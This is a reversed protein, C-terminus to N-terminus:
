WKLIPALEFYVIKGFEGWGTELTRSDQFWKGDPASLDGYFGSSAVSIKLDKGSMTRSFVRYARRTHYPDTVVLLSRLPNGELFDLVLEADTMTNRSGNLIVHRRHELDCERCNRRQIHRWDDEEEGVLVLLGAVDRDYLNVAHRLRSGGGGGLVVIADVRGPAQDIVLWNPLMVLGLAAVGTLLALCFLIGSLFLLLRSFM